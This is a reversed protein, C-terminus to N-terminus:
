PQNREKVGGTRNVLLKLKSSDTVLKGSLVDEETFKALLIDGAKYRDHDYIIWITGDPAQCGDPYSIAEREDLLLGGQWTKGDDDSLSAILHSRKYKGTEPDPAHNVLLLRGSQLRRIFFRSCPGGLGSDQGPSWTRGQDSSYSEGIGYDTRVLIWLRGDNLEVVHHEDFAREAVDPGVRLEFTRGGDASISLNSYCEGRLHEPAEAGGIKGTWLATPCAWSGDTLVIPKNMMVGNAIRVPESWEPSAAAPDACEAFWVGDIGNSIIGDKPTWTQAWFWRLIGDPGVWLTPDYARINEPPDVVALPESWSQGGDLSSVLVVFNEPGEGTGGSYWTAWLRGGSTIEVGPIGQFQREATLHKAQPKTVNVAQLM